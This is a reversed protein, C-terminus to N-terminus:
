ASVGRSDNKGQSILLHVKKHCSHCLIVLNKLENNKYSIHHLQLSSQNNNGCFYCKRGKLLLIEARKLKVEYRIKGLNGYKKFVRKKGAKGLCYISCYKTRKSRDSIDRGCELCKRKKDVERKIKMKEISKKMRKEM